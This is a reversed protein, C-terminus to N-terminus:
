ANRRRVRALRTRVATQVNEPAEPMALVKELDAVAENDKDLASYVLARNYLSRARTTASTDRSNILRNYIELAQEPRNAKAHALGELLLQDDRGGKTFLNAFRQLLGM